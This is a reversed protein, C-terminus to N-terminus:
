EGGVWHAMDRNCAIGKGKPTVAIIGTPYDDEFLGMGADVSEQASKGAEMRDNVWKALVRRMIVEGIGTAGVAGSEGAFFGSGIIASDGVRGSLMLNTGGTSVATAFVGGSDRAVAGVTDHAEVKFGKWSQAYKPLDGTRLKEKFRALNDISVQTLPDYEPFGMRRAFRTAPEGCLLIHPTDAVKRAVRVPNRVNMVSAVAGCKGKSDMIAADMRVSGDLRAKSGTGANFRPDDELIVVAEEVAEIASGGELLIDYAKRGASEAGDRDSAKSGAGCHVIVLPEM